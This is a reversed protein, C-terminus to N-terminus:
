RAPESKKMRPGTYREEVARVKDLRVQHRGGEFSADLWTRVAERAIDVGIVRAGLSLVNADNHERAVRATYSEWCLTCRVGPVKNAVIAEGNGSGGIIIGRDCQASAVAEAAPVIFDPYDVQDASHTGFDRVEHGLDRLMRKLEEKLTYGAHDSALAIRM